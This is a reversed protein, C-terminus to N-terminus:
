RNKEENGKVADPIQKITETTQPVGDVDNLASKGMAALVGAVVAWILTIILFSIGFRPDDGNLLHAIAWWLALSGFLLVMHAAVGAGALMGAGKGANKASQTVEAKALAVEQRMLTSFNKSLDGVVEGLGRTDRPDRYYEAREQARREGPSPTATAAVRTEADAEAGEHRGSQAAAYSGDYQPATPSPTRQQADQQGYTNEYQQGGYQQTNGYTSNDQQGQWPQTGAYQDAVYHGQDTVADNGYTNPNQYPLGQGTGPQNPYNTM